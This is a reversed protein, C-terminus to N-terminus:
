KIEAPNNINLTNAAVSAPAKQADHNIIQNDHEIQKKSLTPAHNIKYANEHKTWLKEVWDKHTLYWNITESM